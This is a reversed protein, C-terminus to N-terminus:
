LSFCQGCEVSWVRSCSMMALILHFCDMMSSVWTGGSETRPLYILRLLLGAVAYHSIDSEGPLEMIAGIRVFPYNSECVICSAAIHVPAALTSRFVYHTPFLAPMDAKRTKTLRPREESRRTRLEPASLQSLARSSLLRLLVRARRARATRSRYRRATIRIATPSVKKSALPKTPARLSAVPLPSSSNACLMDCKVPSASVKDSKDPRAEGSEDDKPADGSSDESKKKDPKGAGPKAPDEPQETDREEEPANKTKSKAADKPGGQSMGEYQSKEGPEDDDGPTDDQGENKGHTEHAEAHHDEDHGPGHGTDQNIVLYLGGATGAVAAAM